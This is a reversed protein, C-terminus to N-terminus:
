KSKRFDIPVLGKAPPTKRDCALESRDDHYFDCGEKLKEKLGARARHLRIKVNELSIQLVDAIEQNKMGEIESLVMVSKHDPPLKEIFERICENMELRIHEAEPRQKKQGTWADRTESEMDKEPEFEEHAHKHSSSKLRDLATNTAIRYIWTSLKSDGKFTDLGRSVKIFTEQTVGEADAPGVMRTVYHLIKQQFEEYITNFDLNRDM